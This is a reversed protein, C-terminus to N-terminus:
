GIIVALLLVTCYCRRTHIERSVYCFRIYKTSHESSRTTKYYAPAPNSKTDRQNTAITTKTTETTM